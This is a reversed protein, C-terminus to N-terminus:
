MVWQKTVNTRTGDPPVYASCPGRETIITNDQFPLLQEDISIAHEYLEQSEAQLEDLAKRQAQLVKKLSQSQQTDVRKRYLAWVQLLRDMREKLQSVNVDTRTRLELEKHVHPPVTHELIPILVKDASELQRISKELKKIKRDVRMKLVAPDLRKKKKLPEAFMVSSTHLSRCHNFVSCESSGVITSKSTSSLNKNSSNCGNAIVQHHFLLGVPRSLTCRCAQSLQSFM